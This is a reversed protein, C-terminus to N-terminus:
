RNLRMLLLLGKIKHACHNEKFMVCILEIWIAWYTILKSTVTCYFILSCYFVFYKVPKGEKEERPIAKNVNMSKVM